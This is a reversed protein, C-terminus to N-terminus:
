GGKAGDEHGNGPLDLHDPDRFGGMPSVSYRTAGDKYRDGPLDLHDRGNQGM